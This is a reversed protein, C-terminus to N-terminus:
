YMILIVAKASLIASMRDGSLLVARIKKIRATIMLAKSSCKLLGSANIRGCNQASSPVIKKWSANLSPM